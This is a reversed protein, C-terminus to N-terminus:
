YLWQKKDRATILFDLMGKDHESEAVTSGQHFLAGTPCAPVCKVCSTCTLSDGWPQAMDTIVRSNGGRGAVDWTHAGEIEDCARVCRTCLICRNHDLGFREHSLDMGLRPYQYEFRVHDVGTRAAMDQLECHGNAVCVSCIHNREALLMEVIMRRYERLKETDTHVDMGEAVATVCSASLKSSGAVEVLCMRCAGVTSLGDLQCLTPISIGAERAAELVTQGERATISQNNVELTFVSM